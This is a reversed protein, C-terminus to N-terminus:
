WVTSPASEAETRSDRQDVIFGPLLFVFPVAILSILGNAIAMTSFHIHYSEMAKAGLWDAGFLSLNRVSVMLSFGLAESGAPTARMYLDSLAMDAAAWGLGWIIEIIYAQNMSNYFAYGMQSVAGAVICWILLRRLNWRKAAYGGYIIATLIAFFGNLFMMLGQQKTSMHLVDQQRYFLATQIGPAFYFLFSFGAAAWMTKAKVIKKLQTGADGLLKESDIHIHKEKLFFIAAPIPLFMIAASAANTWGFAVTALIGGLPGGVVGATQYAVQFVSAFRGSAKFSQAKETMFGGVATSTIVMFVNIAICMALLDAYRHPTYILAIFGAVSLIAGTVVYSKRRTGFFPFADTFIGFFPKFYWALGLWFFFGATAARDANLENKLLNKLPILSIANQQSLSVATIGFFVVIFAYLLERKSNKADPHDTTGANSQTIETALPKEDAGANQSNVAELAMMDVELFPM